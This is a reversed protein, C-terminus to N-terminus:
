REGAIRYVREATLEFLDAKEDKTYGAAVIKFANWLVHYSVSLKDVPFNSEFMCRHPGFKEIAHHCYPKYATALVDSGPPKTQEHWGHGVHPMGLGGLKLIVNACSSLETIHQQWETFLEEKRGAYPGIGLPGGLHNAIITTEPFARALEVLEPLQLFFNWADFSLGLPALKAFGERFTEKQYVCSGRSSDNVEDSADWSASHRIGRFLQPSMELHGQLVEEVRAGLNLDAHGVIASVSVRHSSSEAAERALSDVFATEGLPKREESGSEYYESRCELFVTREIRHGSETDAWLDELMYPGWSSQKWFHHHPDVIPLDPDVIEETLQALWATDYPM